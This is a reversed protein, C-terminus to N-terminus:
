RTELTKIAGLKKELEKYSVQFRSDVYFTSVKKCSICKIYVPAPYQRSDIDEM